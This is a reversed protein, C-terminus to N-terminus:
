SIPSQLGLGLNSDARFVGDSNTMFRMRFVYLAVTSWFFDPELLFHHHFVNLSSAVESSACSLFFQTFRAKQHVTNTPLCIPLSGISDLKVSSSSSIAEGWSELKDLKREPARVVTKPTGRLESDLESFVTSIITGGSFASVEKRIGELNVAECNGDAWLVIDLVGDCIIASSFNRLNYDIRAPIKCIFKM